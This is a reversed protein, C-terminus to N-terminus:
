VNIELRIFYFSVQMACQADITSCFGGDFQVDVSRYVIHCEFHMFVVVFHLNNLGNISSFFISYIFMKLLNERYTTAVIRILCM